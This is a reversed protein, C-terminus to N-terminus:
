EDDLDTLEDDSDGEFDESEFDEDGSFDHGLGQERYNVSKTIRRSREAALGIVPLSPLGLGLEDEEDDSNEERRKKGKGKAAATRASPAGLAVSAKGLKRTTAAAIATSKKTPAPGAGGGAGGGQVDLVVNATGAFEQVLPKWKRGRANVLWHNIQKVTKGTLEGLLEKTARDAFPSDFHKILWDYLLGKANDGNPNVELSRARWYEPTDTYVLATPVEGKSKSKKSSKRAPKPKEVAGRFPKKGATFPAPAAPEVANGGSKTSAKLATGTTAGATGAATSVRVVGDPGPPLADVTKVPVRFGSGHGEDAEEEKLGAAASKSKTNSVSRTAKAARAFSKLASKAQPSLQALVEPDSALLSGALGESKSKVVTEHASAGTGTRAVPATVATVATKAVYGAAGAGAGGSSAKAKRPTLVETPVPESKQRKVPIRLLNEM